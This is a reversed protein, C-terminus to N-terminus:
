EPLLTIQKEIYNYARAVTIAPNELSPDQEAEIVVWGTYQTKRIFELVPAFDIVGDGPITFMGKRIGENFTLQNQRVHLLIDKRVDKLHIHNIRTGFEKILRTYDFGGAFAHGTDLLLGVENGTASMVARVEDLTEAVMMLHHHYALSLGYREKLKRAFQTLRNGYTLFEEASLTWRESLPVDLASPPMAGCEGYVMVLAGTDRLLTAFKDVNELEEEVDRDALFGSYWGSAMTLHYQKLLHNLESPDQPFIRSMEVGDYGASTAESLCIDATTDEGLELIVENAWSLPSIAIRVPYNNKDIQNIM